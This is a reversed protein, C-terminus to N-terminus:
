RRLLLTSHTTMLGGQNSVLAVEAGDVQRPGCEHRLQRVAEVVLQMGPLGTESLLGGATNVPLEGGLEIRGGALWPGGEGKPCFGYDELTVLVTITFCDYLQAVDVDAPCLGAMAFAQRGSEVASTVTIEPRLHLDWASHAQGVGAIRIPQRHGLAQAREVSTVIVAAAGDSVLCCDSRRLPDILLPEAAYEELTLPKQLQANPNLSGHRRIAKAVAGLHEPRTGYLEMHRRAVMAYGAPTGFWGFAADDGWGKEYAHRSGTRPNDASVIAVTHCMGADICAMAYHIMSINTAGGQDLSTLVRPQIGMRQAVRCSYMMEFQSTPTKTLLGDIDNKTLGADALAAKIARISLTVTDVGPHKGWPTNGVGIVCYRDRLSM